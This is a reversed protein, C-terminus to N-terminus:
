IITQKGKEIDYTSQTYPLCVFDGYIRGEEVIKKLETHAEEVSNFLPLADLPELEFREITKRYYGDSVQTTEVSQHLKFIKWKM